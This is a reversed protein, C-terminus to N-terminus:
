KQIAKLYFNYATDAIVSGDYSKAISKLHESSFKEKTLYLTKIAETLGKVDDTDCFYGTSDDLFVETGYNRTSVVPLGAAMAEVAPIGFTEFDSSVVLMDMDRFIEAIEGHTKRGVFNVFDNVKLKGCYNKYFTELEGDGVATYRIFPFEDKLVNVAELINEFRKGERMAGVSIINFRPRNSKNLSLDFKKCEVINSLVEANVGREKYKPLMFKGVCTIVAKEMVKANYKAEKGTFYREFYSSHETMVVPVGIKEGLICCAYGAPVSVHAHIVDPKGNIKEYNKYEKLLKKTYSKIQMDFGFKSIDLMKRGYVKFNEFEDVFTKKMGIYKHASSLGQRDIYIMNAKMRDDENLAKCFVKHYEGMLRDAGNPYWTPVVLVHLKKM